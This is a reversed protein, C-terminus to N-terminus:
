PSFPALRQGSSESKEQAEGAGAARAMSSPLTLLIDSHQNELAMGSNPPDQPWLSLRARARSRAAEGCAAGLGSCPALSEFSLAMQHRQASPGLSFPRTPLGRFPQGMASKSQLARYAGPGAKASCLGPDLLQKHQDSYCPATRPHIRPRSERPSGTAGLIHGEPGVESVWRRGQSHQSKAASALVAGGWGGGFITLRLGAM